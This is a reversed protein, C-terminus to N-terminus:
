RLPERLPFPANVPVQKFMWEEGVTAGIGFTVYTGRARSQYGMLGYLIIYIKSARNKM